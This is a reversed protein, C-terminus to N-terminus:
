EAITITLIQRGNDLTFTNSEIATVTDGSDSPDTGSKEAITITVLKGGEAPVQADNDPM